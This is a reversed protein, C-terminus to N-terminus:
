MHIHPYNLYWNKYLSLIRGAINIKIQCKTWYVREKWWTRLNMWSHLSLRASFITVFVKVFLILESSLGKNLNIGGFFWFKTSHGPGICDTGGKDRPPLSLSYQCQCQPKSGPRTKTRPDYSTVGQVKTRVIGTVKTRLWCRGECLATAIICQYCAWEDVSIVFCFWSYFFFDKHKEWDTILNFKIQSLFFSNKQATQQFSQSTDM